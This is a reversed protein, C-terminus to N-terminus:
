IPLGSEVGGTERRRSVQGIAAATTTTTVVAQYTVHAEESAKIPRM